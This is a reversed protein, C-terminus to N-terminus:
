KNGHPLAKQELFQDSETSEDPASLNVAAEKQEEGARVEFASVRGVSQPNNGTIDIVINGTTKSWLKSSVTMGGLEPHLFTTFIRGPSLKQLQHRMATMTHQKRFITLLAGVTIVILGLLAIIAPIAFPLHYRIQKKTPFVPVQVTNSPSLNRWGLVGRAGVVTSAVQDTWILNPIKAAITSNESLIKWKAWKITAIQNAFYFIFLPQLLFNLAFFV